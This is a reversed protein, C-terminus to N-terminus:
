GAASRDLPTGARPGPTQDFLEDVVVDLAVLENPRMRVLLELPYGDVKHIHSFMVSCFREHRARDADSPPEARVVEGKCQLSQLTHIDAGTVAIRPGDRWGDPGPGRPGGGAADVLVRIRGEDADVVDIGWGRRALPEGDEDVTGVIISAGGELFAVLSADFAPSRDDDRDNRDNCDDRDDGSSGASSRRETM